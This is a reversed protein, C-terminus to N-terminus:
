GQIKTHAFLIIGGKPVYVQYGQPAEQGLAEAAQQIISLETECVVDDGKIYNTQDAKLLKQVPGTRYGDSSLLCVTVENDLTEDPAGECAALLERLTM